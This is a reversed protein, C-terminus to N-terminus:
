CSGNKEGDLYLTDSVSILLPKEPETKKGRGVVAPDGEKIKFGATLPFCKSVVEKRKM